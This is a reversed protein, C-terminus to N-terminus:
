GLGAICGSGGQNWSLAFWIEHLCLIRVECKVHGPHTAGCENRRHRTRFMALVPVLSNEQEEM